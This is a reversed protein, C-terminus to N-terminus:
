ILFKLVDFNFLAKQTIIPDLNEFFSALFYKRFVKLAFPLVFLM